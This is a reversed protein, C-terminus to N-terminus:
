SRPPSTTPRARQPAREALENMLTTLQMGAEFMASMPDSGGLMDPDGAGLIVNTADLM